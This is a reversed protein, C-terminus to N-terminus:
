SPKILERASLANSALKGIEVATFKFASITRIGAGNVGSAGEILVSWPASKKSKAHQVFCGRVRIGDISAAVLFDNGKKKHKNFTPLGNTRITFEADSIAEIYKVVTKSALPGDIEEGSDVYEEVPRGNILICAEVGPVADIVAM